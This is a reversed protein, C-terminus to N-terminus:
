PLKIGAARVVEMAQDLPIGQARLARLILDKSNEQAVKRTVRPAVGLQTPCATVQAWQRAIIGAEQAFDYISKAELEFM